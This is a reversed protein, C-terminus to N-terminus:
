RTYKIKKTKRYKRNGGKILPPKTFLSGIYPEYSLTGTHLYDTPFGNYKLTDYTVIVHANLSGFLPDVFIYSRKPDRSSKGDYGILLIYHKGVKSIIPRNNDINDVLETWSPIDKKVGYSGKSINILNRNVLIEYPDQMEEFNPFTHAINYQTISSLGYYKNVAEVIAAYCWNDSCQKKLEIDLIKSPM